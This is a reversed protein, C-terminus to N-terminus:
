LHQYILIDIYRYIIINGSRYWIVNFLKTVCHLSHVLSFAMSVDNIIKLFILFKLVCSRWPYLCRLTHGCRTLHEHACVDYILPSAPVFCELISHAQLIKSNNKHFLFIRWTYYRLSRPDGNSVTVMCSQTCPSWVAASQGYCFSFFSLPHAPAAARLRLLLSFSSAAPLM